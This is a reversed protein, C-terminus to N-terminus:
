PGTPAKRRLSWIAAACGVDSLLLSGASQLLQEFMTPGALSFIEKRLVKTDITESETNETFSMDCRAPDRM